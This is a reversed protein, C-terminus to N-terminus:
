KCRTILILPVLFRMRQQLRGGAMCSCSWSYSRYIVKISGSKTIGMKVPLASQVFFKLGFWRLCFSRFVNGSSQSKRQRKKTRIVPALEDEGEMVEVSSNREEQGPGAEDESEGAAEAERAQSPRDVTKCADFRMRSFLGNESM